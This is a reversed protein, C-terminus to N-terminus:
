KYIAIFVAIAAILLSFFDLKHDRTWKKPSIDDLKHEINNLREDAGKDGNGFCFHDIKDIHTKMEKASEKNAKANEDYRLIFDRFAQDLRTLIKESNDM